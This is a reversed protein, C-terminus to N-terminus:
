GPLDVQDEKGLVEMVVLDVALELRPGTSVNQMDTWDGTDVQGLEVSAIALRM